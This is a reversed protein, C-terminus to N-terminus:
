LTGIRFGYFLGCASIRCLMVFLCICIIFVPRSAQFIPLTERM